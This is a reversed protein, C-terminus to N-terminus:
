APLPRGKGNAGTTAKLADQVAVRAQDYLATKIDRLLSVQQASAAATDRAAKNAEPEEETRATNRVIQSLLDNSRQIARVTAQGAELQTSPVAPGADGGGTGVPSTLGGGPQLSRGGLALQAAGAVADDGLAELATSFAGLANAAILIQNVLEANGAQMADRLQTRLQERISDLGVGSINLGALAANLATRAQDALFQNREDESFLATLAGQLRATFADLGGALNVLEAAFTVAQTRTGQFTGGLLQLAGDVLTVGVQLRVYAQTLTENSGALQEVLDTIEGLSGDPGLLGTGARIDSAAALLFQAGDALMAADDRWREAIESAGAGAMISDITAIVAESNIRSIAAEASAEEFSRGLIDVFYQTAKVKGDRDYEQVVRFAADLMQPATGQLATAANVMTQQVGAFLEEAAAIAEDSAEGTRTRRRDSRFIGGRELTRIAQEVDVGEAGLRTTTTTGTIEPASRGFLRQVIASGSLM